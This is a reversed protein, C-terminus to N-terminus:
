PKDFFTYDSFTIDSRIRGSFFFLFSVEAYFKVHEPLWYGSQKSMDFEMTMSDVAAPLDSPQLIARVVIYEDRHVWLDGKFKDEAPENVRVKLHYVRLGYYDEEGALSFLYADRYGPGVMERLSFKKSEGEKQDEKAEATVDQWVGDKFDMAHLLNRTREKESVANVMYTRKSQEEVTTDDDLKQFLIDQHYSYPYLGAITQEHEENAQSILDVLAATDQSKLGSASLVM